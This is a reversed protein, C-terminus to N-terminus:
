QYGRAFAASGDELEHEELDEEDGDEHRLRWLAPDEQTAPLWSVVRGVVTPVGPFSRSIRRGLWRSGSTQWEEDDSGEEDTAPVHEEHQGAEDPQPPAAAAAAASRTSWRTGVGRADSEQEEPPEQPMTATDDSLDVPQDPRGRALRIMAHEASSPQLRMTMEQLTRTPPPLPEWLAEGDDYRVRVAGFAGGGGVSVPGNGPERHAVIHGCFWRKDDRWWCGVRRGILEAGSPVGDGVIRTLPVLAAAGLWKDYRSKWGLFHVLFESRYGGSATRRDAVRVEFYSGPVYTDDPLLCAEGVEYAYVGGDGHVAPSAAGPQQQFFANAASSLEGAASHAMQPPPSAQQLPSAHQQQQQQSPPRAPSSQRQPPPPQRRARKAPREPTSRVHCRACEVLLSPRAAICEVCVPHGCPLPQVMALVCTWPASDGFLTHVYGRSKPCDAACEFLQAPEVLRVIAAPLVLRPLAM